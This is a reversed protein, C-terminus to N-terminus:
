AQGEAECVWCSHAEGTSFSLSLFIPTGKTHKVRRRRRFGLYYADNRELDEWERTQPSGVMTPPFDVLKRPVMNIRRWGAQEVKRKTIVCTERRSCFALGRGGARERDRGGKRLAYRSLRLSRAHIFARQFHWRRRLVAHLVRTIIGPLEFRIRRDNATCYNRHALMSVTEDDQCTRCGAPLFTLLFAREM